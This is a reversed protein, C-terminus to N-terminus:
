RSTFRSEGVVLLVARFTRRVIKGASERWVLWYKFVADGVAGRCGAFEGHAGGVGRRGDYACSVDRAAAGRARRGASRGPRWRLWMRRCTRTCGAGASYTRVRRVARLARGSRPWAICRGRARMRARRRCRLRLAQIGTLVRPATSASLPASRARCPGRRALICWQLDLVISRDRLSSVPRSYSTIRGPCASNKAPAYTAKRHRPQANM